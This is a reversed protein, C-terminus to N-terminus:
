EAVSVVEIDFELTEGALRPNFDVRVAGDTIETIEALNGDQTQLYMGEEPEEDGLQQNLEAPDYSQVREETWEGYGKEPPIRVTPTDGPEMGMLADELGEIVQGAGIEVTLPTFERDPQEAALETEEAVSERSTDFVTGDKLRGTYEISVSDGTAITM